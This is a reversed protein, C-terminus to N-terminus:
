LLHIGSKGPLYPMESDINEADTKGNANNEFNKVALAFTMRKHLYINFMISGGAFILFGLISLACAKFAFSAHETDCPPLCPTPRCIPIAACDNLYDSLAQGICVAYFTFIIANFILHPWYLEFHHKYFSLYANSLPIFIGLTCLSWLWWRWSSWAEGAEFALDAYSLAFFVYGAMFLMSTLWQETMVIKMNLGGKNKPYFFGGPRCM